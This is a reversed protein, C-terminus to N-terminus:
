KGETRTLNELFRLIITRDFASCESALDREGSHLYRAIDSTVKSAVSEVMRELLEIQGDAFGASPRRTSRALERRLLEELYHRYGKLVPKVDLSSLWLLFNDVGEDIIGGAQEAAKQREQLNEEVVQKLDDVEFLYVDDIEGISPEIDRPIAVDVLFISTRRRPRVRLLMEKDIMYHPAGTACIVVDARTMLTELEPLLHFSGLGIEEVLRRASGESRNVIMLEAPQYSATYQAALRAMEGAGVILFRKASLDGFVRKALDIAAHSISVTKAGIATRHRIKKSAALAEQGLRALVSGLSGAQRSLDLADKFQGTIQTEGVVLSDLSGAVRFAQEVAARSRLLYTHNRHHVSFDSDRQLLRRLAEAAVAESDKGIALGYLEFRNCTSLVLLESLGEIAELVAPIRELLKQRDVYLQERFDIDATKHNAGYCFIGDVPDM